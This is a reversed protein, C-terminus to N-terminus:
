VGSFLEGRTIRNVYELMNQVGIYKFIYYFESYLSIFSGVFNSSLNLNFNESWCYNLNDNENAKKQGDKMTRINKPCTSIKFENYFFDSKFYYENSFSIQKLQNFLSVGWKIGKEKLDKLYCLLYNKWFIYGIINNNEISFQNGSIIAPKFDKKIISIFQNQKSYYNTHLATRMNQNILNFYEKKTENSNRNGM